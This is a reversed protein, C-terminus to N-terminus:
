IGLYAQKVAPNAMLEAAPAHLVIRGGELVYARSVVKLTKAIDQEVLLITLGRRNLDSLAKLITSVMVPSLGVSPEDLLLIKPRSMLARGICLMQQEGGSLSGSPQGRREALAPFLAFVAELTQNITPRAASRYAGLLLNDYVSLPAIVGHELVAAIGQEALAYPPMREVRQGDFEVTGAMRPLLGIIARILTSKGAANSGVIAVFEAADVELDVERLVILDGYGSTLGRVKLM